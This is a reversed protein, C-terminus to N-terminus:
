QGCGAHWRVLGSPWAGDCLRACSAFCCPFPLIVCAAAARARAKKAEVKPQKQAAAHENIFFRTILGTQLFRASVPRSTLLLLLSRATVKCEIDDTLITERAQLQVLAASTQSADTKAQGGLKLFPVTQLRRHLREDWATSSCICNNYIYPAHRM